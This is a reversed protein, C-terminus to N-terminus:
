RRSACCCRRHGCRPCARPRLELRRKGLGAVVMLWGALLTPLITVLPTQSM